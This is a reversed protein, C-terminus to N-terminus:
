RGWVEFHPILDFRDVSSVHYVDSRDFFAKTPEENSTDGDTFYTNNDLTYTEGPIYDEPKAYPVPAESIDDSIHLRISDADSNGSKMINTGRSSLIRVYQIVTPIWTEEEWPGSTTRNWITATKNYFVM